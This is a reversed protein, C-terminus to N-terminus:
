TGALPKQLKEKLLNRAESMTSAFYVNHTANQEIRGVADFIVKIANNIGVIAVPGNDKGNNSMQLLEKLQSLGERTFVNGGPIMLGNRLDLIAGLIQSREESIRATTKLVATLEEWTWSNGFEVLFVTQEDNDWFLEISM